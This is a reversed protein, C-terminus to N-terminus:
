AAGQTRSSLHKNVCPGYECDTQQIHTILWDRMFNMLQVNVAVDGRKHRAVYEEVQKILDRHKMRHMALGAYGAAALMAEESSFHKRTYDVLKQLLPGTMGQAKGHLMAEHLDNLLSILVRHQRDMEEVGVSYKSSWALLPM